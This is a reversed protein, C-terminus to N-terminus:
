NGDYEESDGEEENPDNAEIDLGRVDVDTEAHLFVRARTFRGRRM